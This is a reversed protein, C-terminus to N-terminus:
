YCLPIMVFGRGNEFKRVLERSLREESRSNRCSFLLLWLELLFRLLLCALYSSFNFDIISYSVLFLLLIGYISLSDHKVIKPSPRELSELSSSSSSLPRVRGLM